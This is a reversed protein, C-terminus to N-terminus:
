NRRIYDNTIPELINWGLKCEVHSTAVELVEEHTLNTTDITLVDEGKWKWERKPESHDLSFEGTRCPEGNMQAAKREIREKTGAELSLKLPAEPYIKAGVERGVVVCRREGVVQRVFARMWLETEASGAANQILANLNPNWLPSELENGDFEIRSASMRGGTDVRVRIRGSDLSSELVARANAIDVAFGQAVLWALLRFLPGVDLAGCGFRVRLNSALWSKGTGRLGDIAVIQYRNM